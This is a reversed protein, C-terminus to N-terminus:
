KVPNIGPAHFVYGLGVVIATLLFCVLFFMAVRVLVKAISSGPQRALGIIGFVGIVPISAIICFGLIKQGKDGGVTNIMYFIALLIAAWSYNRLVKLIRNFIRNESNM